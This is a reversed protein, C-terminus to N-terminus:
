EKVIVYASYGDAKLKEVQRDANGRNSFTGAIVQYLYPSEEVPPPIVKEKLGFFKELGKVHGEALQNLFTETKLRSADGSNSIFLNETLLAIMKSERLVHFNSKLKGRNYVTGDIKRIIEEHIVNQMAQTKASANTYIHTEFGKATPYTSANVHVSLFIDAGWNNAKDTREKLTLFVDTTRTQMIEVEEYNAKLLAEIKKVLILNIDKELLGNGVAGSDTGGHGADLYIKVM